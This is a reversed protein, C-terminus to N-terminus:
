RTLAEICMEKMLEENRVMPVKIFYLESGQWLLIGEGVRFERKEVKETLEKPILMSYISELSAGVIVIIGFNLRSGAPFALADPRQCTIVLRVALSRGLM